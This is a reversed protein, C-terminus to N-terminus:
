AKLRGLHKQFWRKLLLRNAYTLPPRSVRPRGSLARAPDQLVDLLHAAPMHASLHGACGACWTVVTRGAAGARIRDPWSEADPGALHAAGGQGCCLTRDGSAPPEKITLGTAALLSRAALRAAPHRRLPCPDHVTVEGSLAPLPLTGSQALVEWPTRVLFRGQDAFIRLCNPCACLIERVGAAELRDALADFRGHFRDSLGLGQSPKFCCSLVAGLAPIARELALFLDRTPGPRTGPLTCGPFFVTHGGPPLSFLTFAPSGGRAEYALLGRYPSLDALGRRAATERMALFLAEPFLGKPCAASCLGCLSCAFAEAAGAGTEPDVRAAIAAPTGRASLFACERVCTGCDRCEREFRALLSELSGDEHHSPCPLTRPPTM